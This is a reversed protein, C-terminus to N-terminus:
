AYVWDAPAQNHSFWVFFKEMHKDDRWEGYSFNRCPWDQWARLLSWGSIGKYYHRYPGDFFKDPTVGFLTSMIFEISEPPGCPKHCDELRCDEERVDESSWLPYLPDEKIAKKFERLDITKNDKSTM